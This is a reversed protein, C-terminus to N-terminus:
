ILSCRQWFKDKLDEELELKQNLRRIESEKQNFYNTIEKLTEQFLEDECIIVIIQHAKSDERSRIALSQMSHLFSLLKIMRNRGIFVNLRQNFTSFSRKLATKEM